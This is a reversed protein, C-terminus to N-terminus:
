RDRGHQEAWYARQAESFGARERQDASREREVVAANQAAEAMTRGYSQSGGTEATYVTRSDREERPLESRQVTVGQASYDQRRQAERTVDQARDEYNRETTKQELERRAQGEQFKDVLARGAESLKAELADEFSNHPGDSSQRTDQRRQAERNIEDERASYVKDTQTREYETQRDEKAHEQAIRSLDKTM